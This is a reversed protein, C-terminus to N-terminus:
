ILFLALTWAACVALALWMLANLLRAPLRFALVILAALAVISIGWAALRSM